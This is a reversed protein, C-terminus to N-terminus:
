AHTNIQWTYHLDYYPEGPTPTDTLSYLTRVPIAFLVYDVLQYKSLDVVVGLLISFADPAAGIDEDIPLPATIGVSIAAGTVSSGDTACELSVYYTGTTAISFNDFMNSPILSNMTGPRVKVRYDPVLPDLSVNVVSIEWPFHGRGRKAVFNSNKNKIISYGPGVVRRGSGSQTVQDGGVLSKTLDQLSNVRGSQAVSRVDDGANVQQFKSLKTGISM